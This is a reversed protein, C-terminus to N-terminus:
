RKKIFYKLMIHKEDTRDISFLHELSSEFQERSKPINPRDLYKELQFLTEIHPHALNPFDLVMRAGPKLVRSLEKISAAAYDISVYEFVGIVMTLDFFDDTFPLNNMEAVKLGGITIGAENVFNKMEGILVPSIDIGYYTSAWKDLRLTALNACCGVDLCKMGTKPHLYSKIDPAGSGNVFPDTEKLFSKFAKSKKFKKPVSALPSIGEKFDRVTSDYSVRVRNLQEKDM